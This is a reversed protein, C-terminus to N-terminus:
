PLPVQHVDPDEGTSEDVGKDTIWVLRVPAELGPIIEESTLETGLRPRDRCRVIVIDNDTGALRRGVSQLVIHLSTGLEPDLSLWVRQLVHEGLILVHVQKDSSRDVLGEQIGLAIVLPMAGHVASDDLGVIHWSGVVGLGERVAVIRFTGVVGLAVNRGHCSACHDKDLGVVRCNAEHAKQRHAHRLHGRIFNCDVFTLMHLLAVLNSGKVKSARRMAEDKSGLRLKFEVQLSLRWAKIGCLM